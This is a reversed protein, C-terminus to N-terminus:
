SMGKAAADMEISKIPLDGATRSVCIGKDGVMKWTM